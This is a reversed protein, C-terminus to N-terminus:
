SVCRAEELKLVVAEVGAGAERAGSLMAALVLMLGMRRMM